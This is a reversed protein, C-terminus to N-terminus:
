GRNRGARRSKCGSAVRKPRPSADGTIEDDAGDAVLVPHQASYRADQLVIQCATLTRRNIVIPGLLNATVRVPGDKAALICLVRAEELRLAGIAQLDESRFNPRYNVAVLWPDTVLFSVGPDDICQLVGIPAEEPDEMFVFRRCEAFGVIGHPFTIIDKDDIRLVQDEGKHSVVLEIPM